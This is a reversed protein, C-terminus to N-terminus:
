ESIFRAQRSWHQIWRVTRSSEKGQWQLLAALRAYPVTTVAVELEDHQAAHVCLVVHGGCAAM